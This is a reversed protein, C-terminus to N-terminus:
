PSVSKHLLTKQEYEELSNLGNTLKQLEELSFVRGEQRIYGPVKVGSTNVYGPVDFEVFAKFKQSNTKEIIALVTLKEPPLVDHQEL